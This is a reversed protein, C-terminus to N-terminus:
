KKSKNHQKVERYWQEAFEVMKPHTSEVEHPYLKYKQLLARYGSFAIFDGLPADVPQSYPQTSDWKSGATGNVRFLGYLVPKRTVFDDEYLTACRDCYEPRWEDRRVLRDFPVVCIECREHQYGNTLQVTSSYSGLLNLLDLSMM